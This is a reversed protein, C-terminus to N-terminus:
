QSANHYNEEVEVDASGDVASDFDLQHKAAIHRLDTLVDRLACQKSTGEIAAVTNVIRLLEAQYNM